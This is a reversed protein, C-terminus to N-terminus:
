NLCRKITDTTFGFSQGDRVRQCAIPYKSKSPRIGVVVYEEGQYTFKRDFDDPELGYMRCLKKFENANVDERSTGEKVEIKGSFSTATYTIHELTIVVGYKQELDKVATAFDARFNTLMQKDIM